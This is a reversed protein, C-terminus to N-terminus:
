QKLKSAQEGKLGWNDKSVENLIIHIHEVSIDLTESVARTITQILKRKTERDRGEWMDIKVVPM